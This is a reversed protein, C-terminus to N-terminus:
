QNQQAQKITESKSPSKLRQHVQLQSFIPNQNCHLSSKEKKKKKLKTSSPSTTPKLRQHVQLKQSPFNSRPVISIIESSEIMKQCKQIFSSSELFHHNELLELNCDLNCNYHMPPCEEVAISLPFITNMIYLRLMMHKFLCGENHRYYISSTGYLLFVVQM